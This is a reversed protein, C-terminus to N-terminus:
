RIFAASTSVFCGGGDGDGGDSGDDGDSNENGNDNESGDDSDDTDGDEDSNEDDNDNDSTDDDSNLVVDKPSWAPYACNSNENAPWIEVPNLRDLIWFDTYAYDGFEFLVYRGDPSIALEHIQERSFYTLRQKEGTTLDYHFINDDFSVAADDPPGAYIFGSGDPLWVPNADNIDREILLEAEQGEAALFLRDGGSVLNYDTYLYRNDVPSYAFATNLNGGGPPNLETIEFEETANVNVKWLGSYTFGIENGDHNYSLNHPHNATLLGICNAGFLKVTGVDVVDGVVIGMGPYYEIGMSCYGSSYQLVFMQDFSDQNGLVPVDPISFSVRDGSSGSLVAGKDTGQIGLIVYYSTGSSYGDDFELVGNVTVRPYDGDEIDEQTLFDPVRHLGTGDPKISFIDARFISFNFDHDSIFAMSTADPHWTINSWHGFEGDPHTWITDVERTNPDFLAVSVPTGEENTEHYAIKGEMQPVHQTGNVTFSLDDIQLAFGSSPGTLIQSFVLFVFEGADHAAQMGEIISPEVDTSFERWEFTSDITESFIVGITSLPPNEELNASDIYKASAIAVQLEVASDGSNYNEVSRYHFHISATDLKSPIALMQFCYHDHTRDLDDLSLVYSGSFADSDSDMDCWFTHWATYLNEEFDGNRIIDRDTYVIDEAFTFSVCFIMLIILIWISKEARKMIMNEKALNLNYLEAGESVNM